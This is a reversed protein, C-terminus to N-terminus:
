AKELLEKVNKGDITMGELDCGTIEVDRLCCNKIVSGTFDPNEFTANQLDVCGFFSGELTLGGFFSRKMNIDGFRTGEMNINNFAAGPMGVDDFVAGPIWANKVSFSEAEAKKEASAPAEPLEGVFTVTEEFPKRERLPVEGAPIGVPLMVVPKENEPISLYARCAEPDFAGIFCGNYGLEAARLLINEAAAGADECAFITGKEEGFKECLWRADLTIVIVVAAGRIWEGRYVSPCLGEIKEKGCLCYFHWSEHNCANPARLGAELLSRIENGPITEGTFSRTSRRKLLLETFEM